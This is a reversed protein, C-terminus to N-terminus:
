PSHLTSMTSRLNRLLHKRLQCGVRDPARDRDARPGSASVAGFAASSHLIGGRRATAYSRARRPLDIAGPTMIPDLLSPLEAAYAQASLPYFLDPLAQSFDCAASIRIRGQPRAEANIGSTTEFDDCRWGMHQVADNRYLRSAFLFPPLWSSRLAKLM